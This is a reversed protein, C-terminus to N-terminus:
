YYGLAPDEDEGMVRNAYFHVDIGADQFAQMWTDFSFYEDWADFKAGM